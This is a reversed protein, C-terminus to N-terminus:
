IFIHRKIITTLKLVANVETLFKICIVLLLPFHTECTFLQVM